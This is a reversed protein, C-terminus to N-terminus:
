AAANAHEARDAKQATRDQAPKRLYVVLSKGLAPNLALEATRTLAPRKMIDWVLLKHYARALPHSAIHM